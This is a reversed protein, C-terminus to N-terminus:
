KSRVRRQVTVGGFRTEQQVQAIGQQRVLWAALREPHPPDVEYVTYLRAQREEAPQAQWHTQGRWLFLYTYAYPIVPPVYVDVNFPQDGADQYVWDVASLSPELTVHIPGDTGATLYSKLVPLNQQAFMVVVLVVLPRWVRRSHWAAVLVAAVILVVAPYVGTFYYDWVYGYNGHYFALFVLPTLWWMVLVRLPITPLKKWNAVALVVVVIAFVGALRHDLVFKNTFAEFYFNLRQSLLDTLQPQFSRDSILFRTFATVLINQHRFNFVLQPLLTVGGGVVGWGVKAWSWKVSRRYSLLVLAIAPLFFTASAAELQLGLGVTLGLIAWRWWQKDGHVIGLLQGLVLIAFLPLPAPNSLWRHAQVFNLSLAVITAAVLGTPGGFYKKGLSYLLAIGAVNIVALWVAPYVPNGGGVLYAPAILYYYFPGLFIGEVGTTPGILFLKQQHWLNWIVLADRGQDFYFGLLRDLRYTRLFLAIAM